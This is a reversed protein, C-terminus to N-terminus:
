RLSQLEAHARGIAVPGAPERQVDSLQLNWLRALQQLVERPNRCGGDESLVAIGTKFRIVMSPSAKPNGAIEECGLLDNRSFSRTRFWPRISLTQEGIECAPLLSRWFMWGMAATAALSGSLM